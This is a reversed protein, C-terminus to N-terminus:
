GSNDLLFYGITWIEGHNVNTRPPNVSSDVFGFPGPIPGEPTGLERVPLQSTLLLYSLFSLHGYLDTISTATERLM